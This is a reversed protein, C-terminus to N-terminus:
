VRRFTATADLNVQNGADAAWTGVNSRLDASVTVAAGPTVTTERVASVALTGYEDPFSGAPSVAAYASGGPSGDINVRLNAYDTAASTNHVSANATAHLLMRNAWAPVTITRTLKATWTSTIAGVEAVGTVTAGISGFGVASPALRNASNPVVVRGLICWSSRLKLLIVVDGPAYELSESGSLVPLDTLVAGACAITNQGTTQNFATVTGQRLGFEPGGGEGFLATLDDGFM